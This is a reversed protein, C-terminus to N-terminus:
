KEGGFDGIKETVDEYIIKEVVDEQFNSLKKVINPITKDVYIYDALNLTTYNKIEINFENNLALAFNYGEKKFKKILTKYKLLEELRVLIVVSEKAHEDEIMSLTKEIKKDKSYLTNPLYIIYKKDFNSNIM